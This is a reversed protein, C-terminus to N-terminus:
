FEIGEDDPDIYNIESVALYAFDIKNMEFPPAGPTHYMLTSEFEFSFHHRPTIVSELKSEVGSEISSATSSESEFEFGTGTYIIRPVFTCNKYTGNADVILTTVDELAEQGLMMLEMDEVSKLDTLTAAPEDERMGLPREEGFLSSLNGSDLVTIWDAHLMEAPEEWKEAEDDSDWTNDAFIEFGPLKTKAEMDWFPEPEGLYVAEPAKTFHIPGQNARAQGKQKHGSENNTSKYGLGFRHNNTMFKPFEAVGQNNRGLGLGPLYEMKLMMDLATSRVSFDEDMKITLVGNSTDFSFGGLTIDEEGHAIELLPANDPVHPRIGSDGYITLTGTALGLQVKQHLSSPVAMIDSRHLWPRGLLLNFSSPIDLVHFEVSTKFDEIMVEMQITGVVDRRTNDYARVGLNSPQFDKNKFGLCYATRLPCVNLASGNDLLVVPVWKEMCKLTIHLPKNHGAGEPPLDKETFVVVHKARTPTLLAVMTEPPTDPPVEMNSLAKILKPPGQSLPKAVPNQQIVVEPHNLITDELLSYDWIFDGTTAHNSPNGGKLYAPKRKGARIAERKQMTEQDETWFNMLDNKVRQEEIEVAGMKAKLNGVESDQWFSPDLMAKNVTWVEDNSVRIDVVAEEDWLAAMPDNVLVSITSSPPFPVSPRPLSGNSIYAQRASQCQLPGVDLEVPFRDCCSWSRWLSLRKCPVNVSNLRTCTLLDIGNLFSVLFPFLSFFEIALKTTEVPNSLDM